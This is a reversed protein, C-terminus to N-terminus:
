SMPRRNPRWGCGCGGILGMSTTLQSGSRLCALPSPGLWCRSPWNRSPRWGDTRQSARRGVAPLIIPGHKPGISSATWCPTVWGAPMPWFSAWRATRLREPRVAISALSAPSHHGQKLFGTKAIVVVADSAGLHQIVYCRLADHVAEPDWLARRRLHQVAYPTADGSVEALQWSNNREAPSLLGRLYARARQRPEAREFYPALRREIDSLYAAGRHIASVDQDVVPAGPAMTPIM